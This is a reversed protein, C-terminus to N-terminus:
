DRRDIAHTDGDSEDGIYLAFNRTEYELAYRKIMTTHADSVFQKQNLSEVAHYSANGSAYDDCARALYYTYRTRNKRDDFVSYAQQLEVTLGSGALGESLADRVRNRGSLDFQLPRLGDPTEELLIQGGREIIAGVISCDDSPLAAAAERELDLSFYKGAAYGLGVAGSCDFDLVEGLLIIHDGAPIVQSTKCSFHAAAGDILPVGQQDEKWAIKGFRDGKYGAFTNSVEEQGEALVSVAFHKCAEFMEFSSLFRGPCVLLLPPDLSVSSFSNATFGFLQDDENRTTVVTVGSLFSGFATRLARPDIQGM